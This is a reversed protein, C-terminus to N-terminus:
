VTSYGLLSDVEYDGGHSGLIACCLLLEFLVQLYTLSRKVTGFKKQKVYLPKHTTQMFYFLIRIKVKIKGEREQRKNKVFIQRIFFLQENKSSTDDYLIEHDRTPQHLNQIWRLLKFSWLKPITPAVPNFLTAQLPMVGQQVKYFDLLQKL